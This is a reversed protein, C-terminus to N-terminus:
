AFSLYLGSYLLVSCFVILWLLRVFLNLLFLFIFFSRM